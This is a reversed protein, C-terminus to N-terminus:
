PKKWIYVISLEAEYRLQRNQPVDRCTYKDNPDESETANVVVCFNHGKSSFIYTGPDLVLTSWKKPQNSVLTLGLETYIKYISTDDDYEIHKTNFYYNHWSAPDAADTVNANAVGANVLAQLVCAKKPDYTSKLDKGEPQMDEPRLLMTKTFNGLTGLSKLLEIKSFTYLNAPSNLAVTLNAQTPGPIKKLGFFNTPTIDNTVDKGTLDKLSTKWNAIKTETDLGSAASNVFFDTGVIIMRQVTKQQIAANNTVPPKPDAKAVAAKAGMEDAEKELGADDNVPIDDKMQMTAKVRGQKQQAVHWAEHALHKEQGSAVHIDTGQAYALANLQSPKDSNYHVKVDDMSYGSLNEVGTKLNDPLGTNNEKKQLAPVAPLSLADSKKQLPNEAHAQNESITNAPQFMSLTHM